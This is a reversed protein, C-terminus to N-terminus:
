KIRRKRKTFYEPLEVKMLDLNIKEGDRRKRYKCNQKSCKYCWNKGTSFRKIEEAKIKGVGELFYNEGEIKLVIRMDGYQKESAYYYQNM